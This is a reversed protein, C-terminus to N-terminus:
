SAVVDVALLDQEAAIGKLAARFPTQSFGALLARVRPETALEKTVVLQGGKARAQLRAALNVTTGFFDLRENARVALCAGASVGLKASLGLEGHRERCRKLMAVAAAVADSESTFTAMVADGMTKVVAGRHDSVIVSMDHFHEQVIAFAKADGVKGYLATSGTLDSFLLALHAITLEIGAAPAETAFLDLFDPFSAVVSGLCAASDFGTREFLVVRPEASESELVITGPDRSQVPEARINEESVVVRLSSDSGLKVDGSGSGSLVRVHLAGPRLDALEVRTKGPSTSLQAMVHPLFAPSSACFVTTEVERIAPHCQFVAEVHTGFDVGYGINCAACHVTGTMDALTGVVQAAVRCVPCNIQWRLDVLGARTAHLFVRLLERRDVGWRDALEFPRMQAVEEDSREVLTRTLREVLAKQVPAGALRGARRELEESSTPSKPGQTIPDYAQRAILDRALSSAPAEDEGRRTRERDPATRLMDGLGDLYRGLASRFRAKMIPGVVHMLASDGAVYSVATVWTGGDDADRLRARFGGRTVPGKLFRREGHVFRGEIWEYPPEIWELEFGIEKARGMRVRKGGQEGWGYHGPTLGSARDWRNTDSVLGWVAFRSAAYHRDLTVEYSRESLGGLM